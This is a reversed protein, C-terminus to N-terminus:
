LSLLIVLMLDYAYLVFLKVFLQLLVLIFFLFHKIIKHIFKDYFYINLVLFFELNIMFLYGM